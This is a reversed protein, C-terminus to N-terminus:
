SRGRAARRTRAFLAWSADDVNVAPDDQHTRARRQSLRRWFGAANSRRFSERRRSRLRSPVPAGRTRECPPFNNEVPRRTLCVSALPAAPARAVSETAPPLALGYVSSSLLDSRSTRRACGRAADDPDTSSRPAEADVSRRSPVIARLATVCVAVFDPQMSASSNCQKCRSARSSCRHLSCIMRAAATTRANASPASQKAGAGVARM